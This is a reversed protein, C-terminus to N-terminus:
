LGVLRFFGFDIMELVVGFIWLELCKKKLIFWKLFKRCLYSVFLMVRGLMLVLSLLYSLVM